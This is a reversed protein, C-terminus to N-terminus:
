HVADIGGGHLDRLTWRRPNNQSLLERIGVRLGHAPGQVGQAPRILAARQHCAPQVHHQALEEGLCRQRHDLARAPLGLVYREDTRV